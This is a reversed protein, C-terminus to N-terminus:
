GTVLRWAIDPPRFRACTPNGKGDTLDVTAALKAEGTLAAELLEPPLESLSIKARRFLKFSGDNPVTGWNLYLYRDGRKGDVLPGRFDLRGGDTRVPRVEVRWRASAADGPVLDIAEGRSGPGVHVNDYQEGGPGPRCSRGPLNRGEIEIIM